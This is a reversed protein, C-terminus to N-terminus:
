ETYPQLAKCYYVGGRWKEDMHCRYIVGKHAIVLTHINKGTAESTFSQLIKGQTMIKYPDPHLPAKKADAVNALGLSLGLIFLLKKM